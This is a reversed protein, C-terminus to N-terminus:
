AINYKVSRIIIKTKYTIYGGSSSYIENRYGGSSPIKVTTAGKLLGTTEGPSQRQVFADMIM